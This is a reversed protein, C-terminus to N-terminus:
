TRLVEFLEAIKPHKTPDNNRFAYILKRNADLIFEGGLQQVDEGQIPRRPMRGRFMLRLYGALVAPRFFSAMPLRELGFIEYARRNPDSVLPFPWPNEKLYAALFSPQTMTVVLLEAGADRIAQYHPQVEGLRAGCVM